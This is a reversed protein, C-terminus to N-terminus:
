KPADMMLMYVIFFWVFALLVGLAKFDHNKECARDYFDVLKKM